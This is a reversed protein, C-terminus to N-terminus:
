RFSKITVHKIFNNCDSIAKTRDHNEDVSLMKIVIMHGLTWLDM